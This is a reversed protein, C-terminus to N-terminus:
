DPTPKWTCGSCKPQLFKEGNDSFPEELGIVSQTHIALILNSICTFLLYNQVFKRILALNEERVYSYTNPPSPRRVSFEVHVGQNQNRRSFEVISVPSAPGGQDRPFKLFFSKKKAPQCTLASWFSPGFQRGHYNQLHKRWLHLVLRLVFLLAKLSHPCRRNIGLAASSLVVQTSPTTNAQGFPPHDTTQTRHDAFRRALWLALSHTLPFFSRNKKLDRPVLHGRKRPIPLVHKWLYCVSLCVSFNIRHPSPM